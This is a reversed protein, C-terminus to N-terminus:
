VACFGNKFIIIFEVGTATNHAKINADHVEVVRKVIALGLGFNGNKDKKYSDFLEMPDDSSFKEGDNAIKIILNNKTNIEICVASKAYRLQNDLINEFAILLAESDGMIEVSKLNLHWVLEPRIVKFKAVLSKLLRDVRIIHKNDNIRLSHDLTNLRLLQTIRRELRESEKKIVLLSEDLSTVGVGDMVAQTYGKIIMVPTKLDHSVSQLFKRDREEAVRLSEKMNALAETLIGIEDSEIKPVQVDWNRKSIENAFKELEKIPRVLRTTALRVAFFSVILLFSLPLILKWSFVLNPLVTYYVDAQTKTPNWVVYYFYSDFGKTIKGQTDNNNLSIKEAIINIAKKRTLRNALSFRNLGHPTVFYNNNEMKVSFLDVWQQEQQMYLSYDQQNETNKAVDNLREYVFGENFKGAILINMIFVLIFIIGVIKAMEYWIKLSISKFRKNM